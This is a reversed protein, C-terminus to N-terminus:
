RGGKRPQDSSIIRSWWCFQESLLAAFVIMLGLLGWRM